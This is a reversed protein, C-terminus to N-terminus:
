VVHILKSGCKTGPALKKGCYSAVYVVKAMDIVKEIEQTVLHCVCPVDVTKVVYCCDTSPENTSETESKLVYKSCKAVLNPVSNQCSIQKASVQHNSASLIGAVMMIALALYRVRPTFVAMDESSRFTTSTKIHLM